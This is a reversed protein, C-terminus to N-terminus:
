GLGEEGDEEEEKELRTWIPHCLLLLHLDYHVYLRPHNTPLGDGKFLQGILQRAVDRPVDDELKIM